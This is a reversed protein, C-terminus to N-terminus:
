LSSGLLERISNKKIGRGIYVNCLPLYEMDLEPLFDGGWSMWLM